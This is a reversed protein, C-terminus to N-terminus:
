KLVSLPSTKGQDVAITATVTNTATNIASVTGNAENTVYAVIQANTTSVAAAILILLLSKKFM